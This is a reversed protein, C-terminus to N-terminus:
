RHSLFSRLAHFQDLTFSANLGSPNPLVWVIAEAITEAQRGFGARRRGPAARYATVGLVTLARPRYRLTKAALGRAGAALEATGLEDARATARDVLNTIGLGHDLLSREEHPQLIRDTLGAAHLAPWFR